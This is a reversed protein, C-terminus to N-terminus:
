KNYRDEVKEEIDKSWQQDNVTFSVKCNLMQDINGLENTDGKELM